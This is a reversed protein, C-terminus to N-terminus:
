LRVSLNPNIIADDNGYSIVPDFTKGSHNRVLDTLGDIYFNKYLEAKVTDAQISTFYIQAARYVPIDEFGYPLKSLEGITYSETAAAVTTGEYAKALELETASTVSDIEYWLGDPLKIYQGAKGTWVTSDGTVTTDANAIATITGTTYDAVSLDKVMLSYPITIPLDATSPTPYIGLQQGFIYYYEPINSSSSVQNLKDWMARTPCKKPQYRTSSATIYPEGLLKGYNAPLDYFAQSAVTNIDKTAELFPWPKLALIRRTIANMLTDGNTLNTTSSDDTLVGYLNRRTTYTLM